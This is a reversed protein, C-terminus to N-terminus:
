NVHRDRDAWYPERLQRKLLKGSPNRPLQTAFDVSRPCKYRAIHQRSWEILEAEDATAGEKLMVVAKVAEGWKHDPVGIVAVDAVAPHDALVNEVEVPYINEGGSVIMDKIRDTLYVYGEADIYGADGTRFWGDATLARATEDPKRWYGKMVQASRTWLEGVNNCPRDQGTDPDVIKIEIHPYPRGASRMLHERPGGPHHDAPDLQTLIGTETLGYIQFFDCAFIRLSQELVANTIPSAGYAIARLASYDGAAADPLATLSALVAPVLFANTIKEHQITRLLEPADVDRAIVTNAGVTMSTMAMGSGGLHFLPMAILYNSDSDVQQRPGVAAMMGLNTNTIMAGKPVGTTGSTYVQLAVDDGAAVVGPDVAPQRLMWAPYSEHCPPSGLVVVTTVTRLQDRVDDVDGVFDAGVFVVGAEADNIVDRMEAASLRWSIPTMVANIKAAGYWVEFFEAGNKDIFAVRDQSGVGEAVLAQAIRSSREDLARWSISQGRDTIASRDPDGLAHRRLVGAVTWDLDVVV